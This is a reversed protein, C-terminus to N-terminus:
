IASLNIVVFKVRDNLPLANGLSSNYNGQITLVRNEEALLSGSSIALDSGSLVIDISSQVSTIATMSRNNFITGDPDALTWYLSNPAMAQSNEDYFCVHVAFTSLEVAKNTFVTPM